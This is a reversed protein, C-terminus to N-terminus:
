LSKAREKYDIISDINLNDGSINPLNVKNIMYAFTSMFLLGGVISLGVLIKYLTKKKNLDVQDVKPKNAKLINYIKVLFIIFLSSFLSSLIAFLLYSVFGPTLNSVLYSLVATIITFPLLGFLFIATIFWSVKLLNRSVLQHSRALASFGKLGEDIYVYSSFITYMSVMLGPIIFLAFGGMFALSTLIFIWFLSLFNKFVLEISEGYKITQGSEFRMVAFLLATANVANLVSIIPISELVIWVIIWPLFINIERLSKGILELVGPWPRAVSTEALIEPKSLLEQARQYIEDIAPGDYGKELLETSISEKAHGLKIREAVAKILEQSFM